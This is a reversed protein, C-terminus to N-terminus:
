VVGIISSIALSVENSSAFVREKVQGFTLTNGNHEVGMAIITIDTDNHPFGGLGRLDPSHRAAM